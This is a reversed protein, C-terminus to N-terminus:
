HCHWDDVRWRMCDTMWEEDWVTLWGSKMEDQWHCHWDDVRWRMPDTIREKRWLGLSCLMAKCVAGHMMQQQQHQLQEEPSFRLNGDVPPQLLSHFMMVQVSYFMTVTSLLFMTVTCPIFCWWRYQTFCQLQVPFSVDDDTNLLDSYSSQASFSVDDVTNLLVSYSYLSHFM